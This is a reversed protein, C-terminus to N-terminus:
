VHTHRAREQNGTNDSQVLVAVKSAVWKKRRGGELSYSRCFPFCHKTAVSLVRCPHSKDKTHTPNPYWRHSGILVKVVAAIDLLASLANQWRCECGLWNIIYASISTGLWSSHVYHALWKMAEATAAVVEPLSFPCAASSSLRKFQELM